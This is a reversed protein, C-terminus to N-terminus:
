KALAKQRAEDEKLARKKELRKAFWEKFFVYATRKMFLFLNAIVM